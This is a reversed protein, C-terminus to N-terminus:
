ENFYEHFLAIRKLILFRQHRYQSYRMLISPAQHKSKYLREASLAEVSLSCKSQYVLWVTRFGAEGSLHYTHEYGSERMCLLILAHM